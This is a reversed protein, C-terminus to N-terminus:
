RQDDDPGPMEISLPVAQEAFITTSRRRGM